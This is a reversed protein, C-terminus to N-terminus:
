AEAGHQVEASVGLDGLALHWWVWDGGKPPALVPDTEGQGVGEDFRYAYLLGSRPGVLDELNHILSM